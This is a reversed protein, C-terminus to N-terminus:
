NPPRAAFYVAMKWRGGESVWISVFRADLDRTEGNRSVRMKLRGLLWATDGHAHVLSDSREAFLYKSKYLSEVYSKKNDVRGSSHSFYLDETLMQACAVYDAEILTRLRTDDAALVAWKVSNSEFAM